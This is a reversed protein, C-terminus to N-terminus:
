KLVFSTITVTWSFGDQRAHLPKTPHIGRRGTAECMCSRPPTSVALTPCSLTSATTLTSETRWGVTPVEGESKFSKRERGRTDDCATRARRPANTPRRAVRATWAPRFFEVTRVGPDLALPIHLHTAFTDQTRRM